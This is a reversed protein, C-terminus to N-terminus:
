RGFEKLWSNYSSIEDNTLFSFTLISQTSIEDIPKAIINCKSYKKISAQEKIYKTVTSASIGLKRAVAAYSKLEYYLQVMEEIQTQTIKKAM